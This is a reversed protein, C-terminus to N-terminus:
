TRKDIFGPDSSADPRFKRLSELGRRLKRSDAKMSGIRRELENAAEANRKAVEQGLGEARRATARVRVREAEDLDEAAQWERALLQFERELAAAERGNVRHKEALEEVREPELDEQFTDYFTLLTEYLAIQRGFYNEMRKALTPNSMM